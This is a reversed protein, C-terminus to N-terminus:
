QSGNKKPKYDLGGNLEHAKRLHNDIMGNVYKRLIETQTLDGSYIIDGSLMGKYVSNRVDNLETPTITEKVTTAHPLFKSGMALSVADIVAQKQSTAM